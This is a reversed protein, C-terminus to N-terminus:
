QAGEDQPKNARSPNLDNAHSQISVKDFDKDIPQLKNAAEKFGGGVVQTHSARLPSKDGIEEHKM